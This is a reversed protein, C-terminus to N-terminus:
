SLSIKGRKCEYVGNKLKPAKNYSHELAYCFHEGSEKVLESFIGEEDYRIRKLKLTM